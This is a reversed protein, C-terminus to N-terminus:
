VAYVLFMIFMFTSALAKLGTSWDHLSYQKKLLYEWSYNTAGLDHRRETCIKAFGWNM